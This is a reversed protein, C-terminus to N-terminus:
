SDLGLDRTAPHWDGTKRYRRRRVEWKTDDENTGNAPPKPESGALFGDLWIEAEPTLWEIENKSVSFGYGEDNWAAM